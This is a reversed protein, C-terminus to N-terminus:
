ARLREDGPDYFAARGVRCRVTNGASYVLVSEGERAHGRELLGLGISRGLSPSICASTVYGDTPCPVRTHGAAMIRGGAQLMGDLATLGILQERDPSTAFPLSLSRKGIFDDHRKAVTSAMGIDLPTTRGNTDSGVHIYGKEVRLRLWAEMGVPHPTLGAGPALLREILAAGYRAPVSIEYQLEGTFSVRAVRGAVGGIRGERFQMHGFSLKDCEFDPQLRQLLDRARPGAIAVTAWNSTVLIVAVRLSPWETQRWRELWAAVGKANRSTPNALFHGEAICTVVGDDFIVGDERLMVSYRIRGPQLTGINSVYFKALFQRADPGTIEIKGLPSADFVGVHERVARLEAGVAQERVADSFRYWDPREWGFDKMVAGFRRHVADAPLYCRPSHLDGRRGNAITAFSVGSYPPRFTTTGVASVERGTLLGMIALGNINSTRGQDTGMGLTTYRKLHEVSCYNELAALKIDSVKVDNQLDVYIKGPSRFDPLWAPEVSGFSAARIRCPTARALDRKNPEAGDCLQRKAAGAAAGSSSIARAVSEAQSLLTEIDLAGAAGGVAFWGSPLQPCLFMSSVPDYTPKMGRQSALHILPTWGGSIALGDCDLRWKNADRGVVTVGRLRRYGFTEALNSEFYCSVGLRQAEDAHIAVQAARTDIIAAVDIGAAKAGFATLYASDNNTYIGLRKAPAVGFEGILRRVASSLMIGPRDNGEFLLPRDIMGSALVVMRTRIVWHREGRRGGADTISQVVTFVNNEYASAVLASSLLTYASDAELESVLERSFDSGTGEGVSATEWRLSGGLAPQDDAVVISLGTNKLSRATLLGAPGGGVVLVDCTAHRHQVTRHNPRSQLRGFGTARRIIPEFLRWTPWMFTKYYFGAGIVGSALQAIAGVDFAASPAGSISRAELGAVLRVQGATIAPDYGYADRVALLSNPDELGIGFIGRPRHYKLSRGIVSIGNALLATALTDGPHGRLKSGNFTFTLDRTRDIHGSRPLRYGGARDTM